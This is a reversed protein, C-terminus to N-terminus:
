FIQTEDFVQENYMVVKNRGSDKAKYLAEDAKKLLKMVDTNNFDCIICGISVTVNKTEDEKVKIFNEEISTRLHELVHKISEESDYTIIGCFEEGGYRGVEGFPKIANKLIASTAILFEDGIIHGYTDNIAKFHDLDLMFVGIKKNKSLNREITNTAIRVFSERNNINTLVDLSTLKELEKEIIKINTSDELVVLNYTALWSVKLVKISVNYFKEDKGARRVKVTKVNRIDFSDDDLVFEELKNINSIEGQRLSKFMEQAKINHKVIRGDNMIIIIPMDINEIIFSKTKNIDSKLEFNNSIYFLTLCDFIMIIEAINFNVRIVNFGVLIISYVIISGVTRRFFYKDKESAESKKSQLIVYVNVFVKSVVFFLFVFYLPKVIIIARHFNSLHIIEYSYVLEHATNTLVMIFLFMAITFLIRRFFKNITLDKFEFAFLIEGYTSLILAANVINVFFKDEVTTRAFVQLVSFLSLILGATLFLLLKKSTESTNSFVVTLYMALMIVFVFIYSVQIFHM